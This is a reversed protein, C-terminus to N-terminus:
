LGRAYITGSINLYSVECYGGVPCTLEIAAGDPTKYTTPVTVTYDASGNNVYIITQAKGANSSGTISCSSSTNASISQSSISMVESAKYTPKTSAKAWASVDSAPLTTPYAPITVVGNTPTYPETGVTVGTVTGTNSTYGNPNTANYPTYGIANIVETNTPAIHVQAGSQIGDLKEKDQATLLGDQGGTGSTSPTAATPNVQAGAEYEPITITGQSPSIISGSSGIKIGTVDLSSIEIYASGSWRYSKDNSLNVYIKGTTATIATEHTYEEYFVGNYLYGEIVDDVYSPLQSSPILGNADLTAVGNAVGMESREIVSPKNKIFDAQTNDTQNWDSQIQAAPVDAMTAVKNSSSPTTNFTLADQKSNWTQKETANTFKNTTNTDDVLDSSLKNNSDIVDQKSSLSQHSTLYTNTDVTGDNKLLGLTQSKQVYDTLSQHSTLYGQQSVWTETAYGTLSPITPTNTLDTYSGSTAVTALDASNAKGSIDQHSTLYGADNTFSSVNTPKNKIFDVSNNDTQNWDAQAQLGTIIGDQGAPGQAHVGTDTNGIFWNGTTQDIHPTVGAPGRLSERQEATLDAFTMTGDAGKPGQEGRDGKDGKPGVAGPDGKDGKDGKPGQPGRPGISGTDGKDGKPCVIYVKQKDVQYCDERIISHQPIHAEANTNVISFIPKKDYFRWYDDGLKGTVELSYDGVVCRDWRMQIHKEDLIEYNVIRYTEGNSVHNIISINTCNNLDFDTIEEGNYKYARIEVVTEFTNGKVIKLKDM